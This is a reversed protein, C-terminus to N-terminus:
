YEVISWRLKYNFITSALLVVIALIVWELFLFIKLLVIQSDKGQNLYAFCKIVFLCFFGCCLIDM